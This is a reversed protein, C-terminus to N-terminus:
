RLDEKTWATKQKAHTYDKLKEGYERLVAEYHAEQQETLRGSARYEEFKETLAKLDAQTNDKYNNAMNMRLSALITELEEPLKMKKRFWLMRFDGEGAGRYAPSPM